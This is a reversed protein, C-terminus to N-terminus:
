AEEIDLVDDDQFLKMNVKNLEENDLPEKNNEGEESGSNFAEDGFFSMNDDIKDSNRKIKPDEKNLKNIDFIAENIKNYAFDDFSM